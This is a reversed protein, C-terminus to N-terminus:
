IIYNLYLWLMIAIAKMQWANISKKKKESLHVALSEPQNIITYSKTKWKFNSDTM